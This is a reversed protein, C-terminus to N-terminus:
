PSKSPSGKSSTAAPCFFNYAIIYVYKKECIFYRMVMKQLKVIQSLIFGLSLLKSHKSIQERSNSDRQIM